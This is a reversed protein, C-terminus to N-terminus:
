AIKRRRWWGLLGGSALILGPLGAGAIPGPVTAVGIQVNGVQSSFASPVTPAFVDIGPIDLPPRGAFILGANPVAGFFSTFTLLSGPSSFDFFLGSDTATLAPGAVNHSSAFLPPMDLMPDLPFGRGGTQALLLHWTIINSTHLVGLTGDTIISGTATAAPEGTFPKTGVQLNINYIGDAHSPTAAFMALASAAAVVLPKLRM